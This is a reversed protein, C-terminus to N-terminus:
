QRTKTVRDRHCIIAPFHIHRITMERLLTRIIKHVCTVNKIVFSVFPCLSSVKVLM